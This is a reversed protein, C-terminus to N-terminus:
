KTQRLTQIEHLFTEFAVEDCPQHNDPSDFPHLHWGRKANDKGYLRKGKSIWAFATKGTAANHFANVFSGDSLFVRVSLIDEDSESIAYSSVLPSAQCSEVLRRLLEDTTM